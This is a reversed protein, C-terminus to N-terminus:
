AEKAWGSCPHTNIIFKFKRWLIQNVAEFSHTFTSIFVSMYMKKHKNTTDKFQRLIPILMHRREGDANRQKNLQTTNEVHRCHYYYNLKEREKEKKQNVFYMVGILEIM